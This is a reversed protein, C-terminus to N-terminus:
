EEDFSDEDAPAQKEEEMKAGCKPCFVSDVDMPADCKPCLNLGKLTAIERKSKHICEEREAVAECLEVFDGDVVEGKKYREYIMKGIDKFDRENYRKMTNIQSKIKTIEVAEETKKVVVDVVEGTKKSVEEAKESIIKGLNELNEM